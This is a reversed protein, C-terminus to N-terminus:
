VSVRALIGRFCRQHPCGIRACALMAIPLEPVMGMYIAVRDGEGTRTNKLVNAFRCVEAHLERYTFTRQEGLEGEWVIARKERKTALHRDLCNFSANIRGSRVMEGLSRDM